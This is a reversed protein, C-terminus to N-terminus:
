EGLLDHLVASCAQMLRVLCTTGAPDWIFCQIESTALLQSFVVPLVVFNVPLVLFAVLLLRDEEWTFGIFPNELALDNSIIITWKSSLETVDVPFKEVLHIPFPIIGPSTSTEFAHFSFGFGIQFQHHGARFQEELL